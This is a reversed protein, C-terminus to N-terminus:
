GKKTVILEPRKDSNYDDGFGRQVAPREAIRKIYDCLHPFPAMDEDTLGGFKYGKVWPWTGIDAVSYKGKGKGALYKRPEGTYKGSLHLELVGYVRLTEDRYRKIADTHMNM